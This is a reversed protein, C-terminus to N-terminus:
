EGKKCELRFCPEDLIQSSQPPAEQIEKFGVEELLRMLREPNFGYHHADGESRQRGFINLLRSENGSLYERIAVDFHPCELVLKGGPKLVRHWDNLTKKIKKHSIHEIVHYSEITAASGDPWPLRNIDCIVDTADTIWLDVNVYGDFHKGGCGLHLMLDEDATQGVKYRIRITMPDLIRRVLSWRRLFYRYIKGGREKINTRLARDFKLAIDRSFRGLSRL